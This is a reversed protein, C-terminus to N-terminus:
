SLEVSMEFVPPTKSNVETSRARLRKRIRTERQPDLNAICNGVQCLDSFGLGVEDALFMEPFSFFRVSPKQSSKLRGRM